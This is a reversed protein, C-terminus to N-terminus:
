RTRTEQRLEPARMTSRHKRRKSEELMEQRLRENKELLLRRAVGSGGKKIRHVSGASVNFRAGIESYEGEAEFIQRVIDDPIRKYSM